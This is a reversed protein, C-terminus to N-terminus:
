SREEIWFVHTVLRRKPGLEKIFVRGKGQKTFAVARGWDAPSLGGDLQGASTSARALTASYPELHNYIEELTEYDHANPEENGGPTNTYDMCTQKSTSDALDANSFDEDQHDLGLTHGVEQCMVFSRWSPTNYRPTRFYTDNLKTVGQTIHGNSIWIQAIGLWGNNGYRENCVEVRGATPRCRKPTTGGAVVSTDLETSLSWAASAGPWTADGNLYRDWALSVNDGLKLQLPESTRKWHYTEWMHTAMAPSVGFLLSLAVLGVSVGQTRDRRRKAALRSGVGVAEESM